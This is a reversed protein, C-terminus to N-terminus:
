VGIIYRLVFKANNFTLGTGSTGSANNDVHGVIKDDNIYLYKTGVTGYKGNTLQFTHGDGSELSVLQKPIFFSQFGWNTDSTGNYYCFVLVIGNPQESVKESLNATHGNTMYMGSAMDAGWLVKQGHYIEESKAKSLTTRYWDYFRWVNDASRTVDREWVANDANYPTFRQRIYSWQTVRIGEGTASIVEFRGARPVPINEITEAIANSHVAWCGTEIYDNFNSEAPIAPLRDLGMVKGYVPNRLCVELGVDVGNEVEGLKGLGLGTGDARHHILTSATSASTTRKTTKFNDTVTFEVDYSSNSDAPFIYSSNVSYKNQLEDLGVETFETDASKKYYLTYLAKNKSNLATVEATFNVKVFEGQDHETGDEDCRYVTLVAVVPELYDLVTKSVTATGTRGRKDKVTASVSMTGSSRLVGTTFSASTYTASNAYVSYSAIPSGHALTPTVTVKFKSLGKIPNGYTNEYGTADTVAVSCSPKVSAPITCTITKTNSGLSTNGNYTTITFTVSVSTGATNQSSLTLPPTWSISTSSSKTAVTGSATGCKYTITHTFGSSHRSITLTQATGLTGNSATLTSKRPITTLVKSTTATITGSSVGSTFSASASLTKKGDSNHSVNVTKTFLTQSGSTSQNENFTSTFTYKTGDIILYGSKETRNFSGYTWSINVKVTVNSTNNDVSQSNQTIAISLSVAM